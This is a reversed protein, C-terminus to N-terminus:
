VGKWDLALPKKSYEYYCHQLEHINRCTPTYRVNDGFQVVWANIDYQFRHIYINKDGVHLCFDGMDKDHEFGFGKLIEEEIKIPAIDEIDAEWVDGDNGDFDLYVHGSEFIASVYMPMSPKGTIDNIEQVLDGIQLDQLQLHNNYM